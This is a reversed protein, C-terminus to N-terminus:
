KAPAVPVQAELSALQKGSEDFITVVLVDTLPVDHTSFTLTYYWEPGWTERMRKYNAKWTLGQVPRLEGNHKWAAKFWLNMMTDHDLTVKTTQLEVPPSPQGKATKSAPKKGRPPPKTLDTFSVIPRGTATIGLTVSEPFFEVPKSNSVFVPAEPTGKVKLSLFFLGQFSSSLSVCDDKNCVQLGPRRAVDELWEEAPEQAALGTQPLLLLGLLLSVYLIFSFRLTNM